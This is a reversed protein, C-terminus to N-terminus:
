RQDGLRHQPHRGREVLDRFLHEASQVPPCFREDNVVGLELTDEPCKFRCWGVLRDAGRDIPVAALGRSGTISLGCLITGFVSSVVDAKKCPEREAPVLCGATAGSEQSSTTSVQM